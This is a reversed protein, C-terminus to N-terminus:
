TDIVGQNLVEQEMERVKMAAPALSNKERIATAINQADQENYLKNM